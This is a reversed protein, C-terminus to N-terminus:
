IIWVWLKFIVIPYNFPMFCLNGYCGIRSFMRECSHLYDMGFLKLIVVLYYFLSSVMIIMAGLDVSCEPM